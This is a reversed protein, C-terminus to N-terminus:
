LWSLSAHLFHQAPRDFGFAESKPFSMVAVTDSIASLVPVELASSSSLIMNSPITFASTGPEIDQLAWDTLRIRSVLSPFAHSDLVCQAHVADPIVKETVLGLGAAGCDKVKLITSSDVISEDVLWSSFEDANERRDQMPVPNASLRLAPTRATAANSRVSPRLFVAHNFGFGDAFQGSTAMLALLLIGRGMRPMRRPAALLFLDEKYGGSVDEPM